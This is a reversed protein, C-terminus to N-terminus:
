VNHRMVSLFDLNGVKRFGFIQAYRAKARYKLSLHADARNFKYRFRAKGSCALKEEAGIVGYGLYSISDSKGVGM